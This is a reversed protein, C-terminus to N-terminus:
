HKLGEGPEEGGVLVVGFKELANSEANYDIVEGVPGVSWDYCVMDGQASATGTDKVEELIVEDM